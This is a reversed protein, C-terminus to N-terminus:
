FFQPILGKRLTLTAVNHQPNRIENKNVPWRIVEITINLTIAIPLVMM